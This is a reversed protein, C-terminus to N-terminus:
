DTEPLQEKTEQPMQFHRCSPCIHGNDTKRWGLKLAEAEVENLNHGAFSLNCLKGTRVDCQMEVYSKSWWSM